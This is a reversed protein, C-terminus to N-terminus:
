HFGLGLQLDISRSDQTTNPMDSSKIVTQKSGSKGLHTLFFKCTVHQNPIVTVPADQDYCSGFSIQSKPEDSLSYDHTYTSPDATYIQPSGFHEVGYCNQFPQQLLYRNISAKRAQLQLRKKRMREKKHANQHGGLAQSNTFGKLCYQCLFKKDGQKEGLMIKEKSIKQDRGSSITSSSSNVGEDSEDHSKKSDMKEKEWSDFEFGFLRLKKEMCSKTDNRTPALCNSEGKIM